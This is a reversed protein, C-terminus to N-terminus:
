NEMHNIEEDEWFEIGDLQPYSDELTDIISDWTEAIIDQSQIFFRKIQRGDKEVMYWRLCDLPLLALLLATEDGYFNHELLVYVDEDCSAADIISYSGSYGECKIKSKKNIPCSYTIGSKTTKLM